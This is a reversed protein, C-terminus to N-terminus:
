NILQTARQKPKAKLLATKDLGLYPMYNTIKFDNKKTVENNM